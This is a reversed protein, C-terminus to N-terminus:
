ATLGIVAHAHFESYYIILYNTTIKGYKTIYVYIHMYVYM